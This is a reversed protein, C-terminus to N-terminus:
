GQRELSEIAITEADFREQTNANEQLLEKIICTEVNKIKHEM